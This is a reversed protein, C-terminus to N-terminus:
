SETTVYTNQCFPSQAPINIRTRTRLSEKLVYKLDKDKDQGNPDPGQGQRPGQPDPEQGPGPGQPDPGQGQGPGHSVEAISKPSFTHRISLM